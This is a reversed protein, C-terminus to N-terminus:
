LPSSRVLNEGVIIKVPPGDALACFHVHIESLFTIVVDQTAPSVGSFDHGWFSDQHADRREQCSQPFEARGNAHM